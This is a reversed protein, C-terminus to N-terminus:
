RLVRKCVARLWKSSVKIETRMDEPLPAELSIREHTFPHYFSVKWAHLAARDIYRNHSEKNGYIRDGLLPCGMWAMHVRIQHTRGTELRLRLLSKGDGSELVQYHTVAPKGEESVEMRNLSGEAKRMGMSITGETEAPIGETIALYEKIYDGQERQMSLRGASVQNRAFVVIGSTEKDLRGVCRIPMSEKKKECYYAVQNALSDSYHGHAPHVVLGAPKDVALLDDDEYLVSLEGGYPLVNSSAMYEELKVEVFDGTYIRSNVRSQVGNVRIGDHRFKAQSIQRKTLGMQGRLFKELIIEEDSIQRLIKEM